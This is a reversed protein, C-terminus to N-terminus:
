SPNAPAQGDMVPAPSYPSLIFLRGFYTAEVVKCSVLPVCREDDAIDGVLDGLQFLLGTREVGADDDGGVDGLLVL